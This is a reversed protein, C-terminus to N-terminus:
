THGRLNSRITWFMHFKTSQFSTETTTNCHEVCIHSYYQTSCASGWANKPTIHEAQTHLTQTSILQQPSPLESM